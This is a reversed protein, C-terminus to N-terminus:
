MLLKQRLKLMDGLPTNIWACTNDGKELRAFEIPSCTECTEFWSQISSFHIQLETLDRLTQEPRPAHGPGGLLKFILSSSLPPPPPPPACDGEVGGEERSGGEIKEVFCSTNGPIRLTTSLGSILGAILLIIM